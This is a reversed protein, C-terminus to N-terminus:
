EKSAALGRVEDESLGSLDAIVDIEMNRELMLRATKLARYHIGEAKGEAKGEAIGEAKGDAKGLEYSNKNVIKEMIPATVPMSKMEKVLIDVERAFEELLKEASLNVVGEIFQGVRHCVDLPYGQTKLLRLMARGQEFRGTESNGAKIMRAAAVIAVSL